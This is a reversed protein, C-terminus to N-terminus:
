NVFQFFGFLSNVHLLELISLAESKDGFRHVMFYTYYSIAVFTVLSINVPHGLFISVIQEKFVLPYLLRFNKHYAVKLIDLVNKEYKIGVKLYIALHIFSRSSLFARRRNKIKLIKLSAVSM